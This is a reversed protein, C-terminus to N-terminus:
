LVLDSVQIEGSKIKKCTGIDFVPYKGYAVKMFFPGEKPRNIGYKSMDGYVLKSLLVMISDVVGYPLYKLMVLGMYVMERNLIHVQM